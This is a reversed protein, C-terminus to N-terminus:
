YERTTDGSYFVLFYNVATYFQISTNRLLALLLSALFSVRIFVRIGGVCKSPNKVNICEDIQAAVTGQNIHGQHKQTLCTYTNM